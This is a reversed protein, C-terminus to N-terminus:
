YFISFLFDREGGAKSKRSEVKSEDERGKALKADRRSFGPRQRRSEVRRDGGWYSFLFDWGMIEFGM